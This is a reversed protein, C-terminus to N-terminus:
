IAEQILEYHPYTKGSLTEIEKIVHETVYTCVEKDTHKDFHAPFHLANGIQIEVIKKVKPFFDKKSLVQYTGKIGVPIIPVHHLLSFQAVGTFAKIMQKEFPSRTGEPFIGVLLGKTIHNKVIQHMKSKNDSTRDVKIQGTLVMLIRWIKNHFFKEASLFHVNRPAIASFCLFDFFSQHNFALIAPGKLPINDKGTVKKIFLFRIPIGIIKRLFFYSIGIFRHDSDLLSM